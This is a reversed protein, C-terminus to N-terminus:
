RAIPGNGRLEHVPACRLVPGRPVLSAVVAAAKTLTQRTESDDSVVVTEGPVLHLPLLAFEVDDVDFAAGKALQLQARMSCAAVFHYVSSMQQSTLQAKRQDAVVVVAAVVFRMATENSMAVIDDRGLAKTLSTTIAKVQDNVTAALPALVAQATIPLEAITVPEDHIVFSRSMFDDYGGSSAAIRIIKTAFAPELFYRHTTPSTSGLLTMADSLMNPLVTAHQCKVLNAFATRQETSTALQAILKLVTVPTVSVTHRKTTSVLLEHEVAILATSDMLISLRQRRTM